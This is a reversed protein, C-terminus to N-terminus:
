QRNDDPGKCMRGRKSEMSGYKNLFSEPDNKTEDVDVFILLDIHEVRDLYDIGDADNRCMNRREVVKRTLNYRLLTRYYTSVSLHHNNALADDDDVFYYSNVFNLHMQRVFLYRDNIHSSLLYEIEM